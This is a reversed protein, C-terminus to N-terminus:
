QESIHFKLFSSFGWRNGKQDKLFLFFFGEGKGGMPGIGGRTRDEWKQLEQKRTARIGAGGVRKSSNKTGAKRYLKQTSSGFSTRRDCGDVDTM